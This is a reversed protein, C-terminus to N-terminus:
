RTVITVQVITVQHCYTVKVITVKKKVFREPLIITIIFIFTNSFM